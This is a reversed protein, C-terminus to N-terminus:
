EFQEVIKRNKNELMHKERIQNLTLGEKLKEICKKFNKFGLILTTINDLSRSAAAKRIVM